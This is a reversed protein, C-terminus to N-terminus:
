VAWGTCINDETTPIDERYNRTDVWWQYKEGPGYEEDDFYTMNARQYDCPVVVRVTPQDGEASYNVGASHVTRPHWFVVDGATGTFEVPTIDRLVADRAERFGEQRHESIIGGHVTDWHPHLRLHSGPWLTFGGNRARIEHVLVMASLEAAMNDAHPGLRGPAEPSKPLVAYIGRVRRPPKIPTGLFARAMAIMNPHNAIGEVLFGETGVGRPGPSRMKWNGHALRGVRPVDEDDWKEEPADLWTAPADRRLIQRPVNTWLYDVIETFVDPDDILGRKVIFGQEKFHAIEAASLTPGPTVCDPDEFVVPERVVIEPAKPQGSAHGLLSDSKGRCRCIRRRGPATPAPALRRAPSANPPALAYETYEM